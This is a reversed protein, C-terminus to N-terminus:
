VGRRVDERLPHHAVIVRDPDYADRARMLRAWTADDFATAPDIGGGSSNLLARPAIWPALRARLMAHRAAIAEGAEADLVAGGAFLSYAGELRALAGHGEPARALAGGLVRLELAGLPALADAAILEAVAEVLGPTLDEVLFGDGRAPAPAEPDGAVRVLAAPEIPGFTDVLADGAARVPQMLREADPASGLCAAIVAVIRRGRLPEPVADIAPLALYRFVAGVSEPAERAWDRFRELVEAAREAPWAVMGACVEAVPHAELELATVIAFRGGGGRLAWYLEPERRADVRVRESAATVVEFARVNSSCLGYTRSLWGTGGDLALGAVGVTAALGLVPALGHAGAADAVAGAQAGAEVRAVGADPDVQVGRMASTKLLITGELPGLSEAGHGTAQPAVRLGADRAIRLVAEVDGAGVAEVVAVPRQDVARNWGSRAADWGTDGPMTVRGRLAAFTDPSLSRTTM